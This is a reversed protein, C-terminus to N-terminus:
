EDKFAKIYKEINEMNFGLAKDHEHASGYNRLFERPIGLSKISVKNGRLAHIVKDFMTGSYFPEVLLIKQSSTLNNRLTDEDFPSITSYYLLTVDLDKVATYVQELMPGFTIVTLDRGKKIVNAKGFQVKFDLSHSKESLRYYTTKGNDHSDTFLKDFEEPTGPVVIEIGPIYQLIGIDGPCHHTCGLAAYDYSSGVSVLNCGLQQYGLDIKIQEFAREVLFPAITHITPTLGAKSMGAALGITAPELIGINFVRSPFAAFVNRFGFVGIDGLLLVQKDDASIIKEYTKIFKKRMVIVARKTNSRVRARNSQPSAV